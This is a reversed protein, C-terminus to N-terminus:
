QMEFADRRLSLGNQASAVALVLKHCKGYVLDTLLFRLSTV